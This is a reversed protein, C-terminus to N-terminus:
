YRSSSEIHVFSLCSNFHRAIQSKSLCKFKQFIHLNGDETSPMTQYIVVQRSTTFATVREMKEAVSSDWPSSIGQDSDSDKFEKMGAFEEPRLTECLNEGETYFTRGRVERAWGGGVLRLKFPIEGSPRARDRWDLTPVEMEHRM